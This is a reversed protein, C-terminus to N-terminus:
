QKSILNYHKNHSIYCTGTTRGWKHTLHTSSRIADQSWIQHDKKTFIMSTFFIKFNCLGMKNKRQICSLQLATNRVSLEVRNKRATNKKIAEPTVSHSRQENLILLMFSIQRYREAERGRKKEEVSNYERCYDLETQPRTECWGEESYGKVLTNTVTHMMHRCLNFCPAYYFAFKVSFTFM